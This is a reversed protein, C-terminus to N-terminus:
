WRATGIALVGRGHDATTSVLDRKTPTLPFAVPNPDAQSPNDDASMVAQMGDLAGVYVAVIRQGDTLKTLRVGASGRGYSPIDEAPTAKATGASTATAVVADGFVVGGGVITSGKVNMGSVGGATAGQNSITDVATRLVQADATVLVLDVGAPTTCAFAVKDNGKLGFVPRGHRLDAVIDPALRKALGSQTVLVLSETGPAVITLIQEGKNAGFKKGADAGRSRGTVEDIDLGQLRLARGESTIAFVPGLTTAMAAAVLVDDRGPTARKAGTAPERGVKGTTTLTIVCPEDVFTPEDDPEPVYAPVEDPSVIV